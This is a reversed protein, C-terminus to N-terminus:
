SSSADTRRGRCGPTSTGDLAARPWSSASDSCRTGGLSDEARMGAHLLAVLPAAIGTAVHTTMWTRLSGWRWGPTNGRRLLYLLNAAILACALIGLGLGLGRSPGM